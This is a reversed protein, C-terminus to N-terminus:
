FYTLFRAEVAVMEVNKLISTWDDLVTALIAGKGVITLIHNWGMSLSALNARLTTSDSINLNDMSFM